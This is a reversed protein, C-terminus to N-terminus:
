LSSIVPDSAVNNVLFLAPLIDYSSAAPRLLRLSISSLYYLLATRSISPLVLLKFLNSMSSSSYFAKFPTVRVYFLASFFTLDNSVKSCSVGLSSPNSTISSVSRILVSALAYWVLRIIIATTINNETAKTKM